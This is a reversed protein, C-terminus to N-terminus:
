GMNREKQENNKIVGKLWEKADPFPIGFYTRWFTEVFKKYEKEYDFEENKKSM